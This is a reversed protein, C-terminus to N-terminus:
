DDKQNICLADIWLMRGHARDRLIRLACLLNQRVPVLVGNVWIKFNFNDPEGWVYSLADYRWSVALSLHSLSTFDTVFIRCQLRNDEPHPRPSLELLRISRSSRDLSLYCSTPYSM